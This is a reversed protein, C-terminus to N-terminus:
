SIKHNLYTPDAAVRALSRPKATPAAVPRDNKIKGDPQLDNLKRNNRYALHTQAKFTIQKTVGLNTSKAQGKIEYGKLVAKPGMSINKMLNNVRKIGISELM